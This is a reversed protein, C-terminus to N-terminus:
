VASEPEQWLDAKTLGTGYLEATYDEVFAHFEAGLLHKGASAFWQQVGTELQYVGIVKMTRDVEEWDLLGKNHQDFAIEAHRYLAYLRPGVLHKDAQDLGAWDVVGKAMIETVEPSSAFFAVTDRYQNEFSIMANMRDTRNSQRIQIGVYILSAFLLFAGIFEGLAGLEAITM